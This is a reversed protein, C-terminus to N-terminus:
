TRARRWASTGDRRGRRTARWRARWLPDQWAAALGAHLMGPSAHTGVTWAWSRFALRHTRGLHGLLVMTENHVSDSLANANFTHRQDADFRPAPYHDVMIEPDYVVKWGNRQLKLCLDLEWHVQAGAGRLRQDLAVDRLAAARIGMNVGKLVAVERAEGSGLHHNGVIRGTWEIRGVDATLENPQDQGPIVDRGGVAGVSADAELHAELRRLWDPRPVADDDTICVLGDVVAGFGVGLAAVVGPGDIELVRLPLGAAAAVVARTSEDSRRVVTLVQDAPRAQKRLGDLCRSLEEPRGYTAILVSVHVGGELMDALGCLKALRHPATKSTSWAIESSCGSTGAAM